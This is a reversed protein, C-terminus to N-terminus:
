CYKALTDAVSGKGSNMEKFYAKIKKDLGCAKLSVGFIDSRSLIKDLVTDTVDNNGFSIKSIEATLEDLLPDPSLEFPRGNDDIGMLYRLWGALALPVYKLGEAKDDYAKITEGFRIAVKQSTDCAIRQPADPMFPNPLRVNIVEDIFSKPEIIKPDTVVPLGEDIGIHKILSVLHKNEMEDSIKTYGLVCGFVALATHLPNLCTCVKMKEVKDVTQRDTFIVGAKELPPRGNKFNDEIVLYQPAEANVFPATFTNKATVITETDEFGLEKLKKAAVPSPRPTIKDIMTWPYSISNQMYDSFDSPAFGNKVWNEAIATVAEKLRTGNHSCNDMSVLTLPAGCTNFRHLCLAALIGMSGAASMPQRDFDAQAGKLSYGKETITLSVMELSEAAFIDLLRQRDTSDKFDAKIGETVSAVVENKISGDSNLTVCLTLSDYKKFISDIIETDYGEAAIIGTDTLGENLLQQCLVAPFARFINGAGFHLWKPKDHTRRRVEDINFKPLIFNSGYSDLENLKLKM